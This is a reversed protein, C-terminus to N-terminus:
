QADAKLTIEPVLLDILGLLFAKTAPPVSLKQAAKRAQDIYRETRELVYVRADTADLIEHVEHIEAETLQEPLSYLEKLRAKKTGKLQAYAYLFPLTRKHERIDSYLDKGTKTSWVSRYDDAIQFALGLSEGFRRLTSLEKSDKGAAIGASEAAIRVLAGTKKQTMIIYREENVERSGIPVVALQFDLHQGEIVEIFADTLAKALKAGVKPMLAARVVRETVLLHQADGSNIADNVGWLKWVTPKGRRMEDRDEVDDHILTFNHFLEIAIAADFVQKRGKYADALALCLSSRFRKGSLRPMPTFSEDVYGFFYRLMNYMRADPGKARKTLSQSIDVDILTSMKQLQKASEIASIESM